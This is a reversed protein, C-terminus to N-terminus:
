ETYLLQAVVASIARDARFAVAFRAANAVRFTSRKARRLYIGPGSRRFIEAQMTPLRGYPEGFRFSRRRAAADGNVFVVENACPPEGCLQALGARPLLRRAHRLLELLETFDRAGCYETTISNEPNGPHRTAPQVVNISEVG